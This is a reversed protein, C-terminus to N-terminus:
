KVLYMLIHETYDRHRTLVLLCSRDQSDSALLRLTESLAVSGCSSVFYMWCLFGDWLILLTLCFFLSWLFIRHRILKINPIFQPRNSALISFKVRQLIHFLLTTHTMRAVHGAYLFWLSTYSFSCFRASGNVPSMNGLFPTNSFVLIKCFYRWYFYRTYALLIYLHLTTNQYFVSKFFTIQLAVFSEAPSHPLLVTDVWVSM